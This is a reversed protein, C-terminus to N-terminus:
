EVIISASFVKEVPKDQGILRKVEYRFKGKDIFCISATAGPHIQGTGYDGFLDMYFNVLSKCGIVGSAKITISIPEKDENVWIITTGKKVKLPDPSIAMIDSKIVILAHWDEAARSCSSLWILLVSGIVLLVFFGNKQYVTIKKNALIEGRKEFCFAQTCSCGM